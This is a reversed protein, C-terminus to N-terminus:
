CRCVVQECIGLRGALAALDKEEEGKGLIILKTKPFRKLALSFGRILNSAAKVWTLRGVFLLM